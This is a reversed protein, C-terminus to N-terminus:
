LLMFVYLSIKPFYQLAKCLLYIIPGQFGCLNLSLFINTTMFNVRLNLNLELATFIGKKRHLQDFFFFFSAWKYMQKKQISIVSLTFVVSRQSSQYDSKELNWSCREKKCQLNKPWKLINEQNQITRKRAGNRSTEM